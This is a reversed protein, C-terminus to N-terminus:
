KSQLPTAPAYTKILSQVTEDGPTWVCFVSSSGVPSIRIAESDMAKLVLLLLRADFHAGEVVYDKTSDVERKLSIRYHEDSHEFLVGLLGNDCIRVGPYLVPTTKLVLELFQVVETRNVEFFCKNDVNRYAPAYNPATYTSQIFGYTTKGCDFFDYNNAQYHVVEEYMTIISGDEPSLVLRPFRSDIRKLYFAHGSFTSFVETKGNLFSVYCRCYSNDIKTDVISLASRISYLVEAPIPTSGNDKNAEPPTPYVAPDEWAFSANCKGCSLVVNDGEKKISILEEAAGAVFASLFAENLLLTQNEKFDAEIEHICWANINSKTMTASDGVCQLKINELVPILVSPKIKSSRKLFTKVESTPILIM